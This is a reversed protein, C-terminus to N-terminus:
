IVVSVLTTSTWKLKTISNSYSATKAKRLRHRIWEDITQRPRCSHASSVRWDILEILFYSQQQEISMAMRPLTKNVIVNNRKRSTLFSDVTAFCYRGTLSSVSFRNFWFFDVFCFLSFVAFLRRVIKRILFANMEIKWKWKENGRITREKLEFFVSLIFFIASSGVIIQQTTSNWKYNTSM